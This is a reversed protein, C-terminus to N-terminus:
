LPDDLDLLVEGADIRVPYRELPEEEVEGPALGTVVDFEWGHAPCVVRTGILDGESLPYGAHPCADDMAFVRDRVRYLGITRGRLEVRLGAGEPIERLAAVREFAV